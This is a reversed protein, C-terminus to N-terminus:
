DAGLFITKGNIIDITAFSHKGFTVNINNKELKIIRIGASGIAPKGCITIINTRWKIKDNEYATLTQMDKEVFFIIGTKSKIGRKDTLSFNLETDTSIKSKDYSLTDQANAIQAIFLLGIFIRFPQTMKTM